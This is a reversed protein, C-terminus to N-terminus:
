SRLRTPARIAAAKMSGPWAGACLRVVATPVSLQVKPPAAWTITGFVVVAKKAFGALWRSMMEYAASHATFAAAPLVDPHISTSM